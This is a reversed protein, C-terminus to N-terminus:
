FGIEKFLLRSSLKKNNLLIAFAMKMLTAPYRIFSNQPVNINHLYILSNNDKKIYNKGKYTRGYIHIEDFYNLLKLYTEYNLKDLSVDDPLIHNSISCYVKKHM